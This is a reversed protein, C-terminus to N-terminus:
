GGLGVCVKCLPKLNEGSKRHETKIKKGENCDDRDHHVNRHEPPYEASITHFPAVTAM